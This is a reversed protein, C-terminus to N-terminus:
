CVKRTRWSLWEPSPIGDWEPSQGTGVRDWVKEVAVGRRAQNVNRPRARSARVAFAASQPSVAAEADVALTVVEM